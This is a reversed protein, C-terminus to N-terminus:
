ELYKKVMADFEARGPFGEMRALVKGSADAIVITPFAHVGYHQQLAEVDPPNRGDEQRRDVVHVPVLKRNIRSAMKPDDFVARDLLRCPGCWEASFDYLIPKNDATARTISDHISVWSVLSAKQQSTTVVHHSVVRAVIAVLALVFLWKPIARQHDMSWLETRAM